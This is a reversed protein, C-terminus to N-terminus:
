CLSHQMCVCTFVLVTLAAAICSGSPTSCVHVILSCTTGSGGSHIFKSFIMCFIYRLHDNKLEGGVGVCVWVCGVWYLSHLSEGIDMHEYKHNCNVKIVDMEQVLLPTKLASYGAEM